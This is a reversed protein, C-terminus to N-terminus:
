GVSSFAAPKGDDYPAEIALERVLEDRARLGSELFCASLALAELHWAGELQRKGCAVGRAGPAEIADSAEARHYPTLCVMVLVDAAGSGAADLLDRQRRKHRARKAHESALRDLLRKCAGAARLAILAPM